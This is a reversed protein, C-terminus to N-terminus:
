IVVRLMKLIREAQEVSLVIERSPVGSPNYDARNRDRRLSALAFAIDACQPRGEDSLTEFAQIVEGHADRGDGVPRGLAQLRDRAAWFAAYYARSVISREAALSCGGAPWASGQVERAFALFHRGEFNM